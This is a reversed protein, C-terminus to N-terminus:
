EKVRRVDIASYKAKETEVISHSLSLNMQSMGVNLIKLNIKGCLGFQVYTRDKNFIYFANDIYTNM